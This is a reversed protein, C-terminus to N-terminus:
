NLFVSCFPPVESLQIRKVTRSLLFLWGGLGELLTLSFDAQIVGQMQYNPPKPISATPSFMVFELEKRVTGKSPVARELVAARTKPPASVQHQTLAFM